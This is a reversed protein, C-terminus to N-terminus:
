KPLKRLFELSVKITSHINTLMEIKFNNLLNDLEENNNSFVLRIDNNIKTIIPNNTNNFSDEIKISLPFLIPFDNLKYENLAVTNININFDKNKNNKMLDVNFKNILIMYFLFNIFKYIDKEENIENLNFNEIVLESNINLKKLIKDKNAVIGAFNFSKFSHNELSLIEKSSLKTMDTNTNYHIVEWDKNNAFKENFGNIKKINIVFNLQEKIDNELIYNELSKGCLVIDYEINFINNIIELSTKIAAVHTIIQKLNNLGVSSLYKNKNFYHYAVFLDESTADNALIIEKCNDNNSLEIFFINLIEKPLCSTLNEYKELRKELSLHNFNDINLLEM